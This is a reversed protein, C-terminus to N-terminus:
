CRLVVTGLPAFPWVAVRRTSSSADGFLGGRVCSAHLNQPMIAAPNAQGEVTKIKAEARVGAQQDGLLLHECECYERAAPLSHDAPPAHDAAVESECCHCEEPGFDLCTQGEGCLCLHLRGGTTAFLLQPFLLLLAASRIWM